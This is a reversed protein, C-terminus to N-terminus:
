CQCTEIYLKWIQDDENVCEIRWRHVKVDDLVSIYANEKNEYTKYYSYEFPSTIYYEINHGNKIDSRNIYGCFHSEHNHEIDIILMCGYGDAWSKCFEYTKLTPAIQKLLERVTM